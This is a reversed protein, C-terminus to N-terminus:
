LSENWAVEGQKSSSSAGVVSNATAVVGLIGTLIGRDIKDASVAAASAKAVSLTTKSGTANAIDSNGEDQVKDKEENQPNNIASKFFFFHFVSLFSHFQNKLHM